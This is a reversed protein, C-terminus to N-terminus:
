YEFNGDTWDHQLFALLMGADVDFTLTEDDNYYCNTRATFPGAHVVQNSAVLRAAAIVTIEGVNEGNVWVSAKGPEILRLEVDVDVDTPYSGRWDRGPLDTAYRCPIHDGCRVVVEGSLPHTFQEVQTSECVDCVTIVRTGM